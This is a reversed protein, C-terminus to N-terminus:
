QQSMWILMNNGIAFLTSVVQVKALGRVLVQTLGRTRVRANVFEATSSREKYIEKAEPADMRKKIELMTESHSTEKVIESPIYLTSNKSAEEVDKHELFGPDALLEPAAKGYRRILQQQMPALQGYDNGAQVVQVGVIAKSECDSAFQVNYAPAFGGNPMKMNRAQPDTKSARMSQKDKETFSHNNKKQAKAKQSRHKRLEVLACEIKKVKEEAARKKAAAQRLSHKCPDAKLDKVYDEAIKLHAKLTKERRFSGKGAHAKVKMGDQAVRKLNIIGQHSLVAISQILVDDLADGHRTRFDSITHENVSVGGCIWKFGMHEKCYRNIMKASIIGEIFAYLWLAFLIRPDIASAGPHSEVSKIKNLIISLDLKEVYAWVFRAKHDEPLWDNLCGTVIEVQNRVPIKLRPKGRSINKAKDNEIHKPLDFLTEKHSM